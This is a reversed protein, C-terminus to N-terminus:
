PMGNASSGLIAVIGLEIELRDVVKIRGAM